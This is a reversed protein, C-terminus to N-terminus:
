NTELKIESLVIADKLYNVDKFKRIKYLISNGHDREKYYRQFVFCDENRKSYHFYFNIKICIAKKM